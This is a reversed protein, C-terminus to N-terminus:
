LKDMLCLKLFLSSFKATNGLKCGGLLLVLKLSQISHLMEGM